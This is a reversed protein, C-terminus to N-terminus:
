IKKILNMRVPKSKVRKVIKEQPPNDIIQLTMKILNDIQCDYSPFPEPGYISWDTNGNGIFLIKKYDIKSYRNLWERVRIVQFDSTCIIAETEPSLEKVWKRIAHENDNIEYFWGSTKLNINNEPFDQHFREIGTVRKDRPHICAPGSAALDFFHINKFGARYLRKLSDYIPFSQDLLIHHTDPTTEYYQTNFLQILTGLSARKEEIFQPTMHFHHFLVAKFESTFFRNTLRRQNLESNSLPMLVPRLQRDFLRPIIAHAFDGFLHGEFNVLGINDTPEIFKQEEESFIKPEAITFKRPSIRNVLGEKELELIAKTMSRTDGGFRAILDNRIPLPMGPFSDPSDIIDSKIHKYLKQYTKM